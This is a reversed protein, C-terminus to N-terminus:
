ESSTENSDSGPNESRECLVSSRELTIATTRASRELRRSTSRARAFISAPVYPVHSRQPLGIGSSRSSAIGQASRHMSQLFATPYLVTVPMTGRTQTSTHSHSFFLFYFLGGGANQAGLEQYNLSDKM